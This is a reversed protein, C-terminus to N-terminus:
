LGIRCVVASSSQLPSSVRTFQWLNVMHGGFGSGFKGGGNSGREDPTRAERRAINDAMAHEIKAADYEVDIRDKRVAVFPILSDRFFDARRFLLGIVVQEGFFPSEDYM